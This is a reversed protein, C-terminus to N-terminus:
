PRAPGPRLARPHQLGPLQLGPDGGVSSGEQRDDTRWPPRGRPIHVPDGMMDKGHKTKVDATAAQARRGTKRPAEQGSGRPAELDWTWHDLGTCGM